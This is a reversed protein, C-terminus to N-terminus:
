EHRGPIHFFSHSVAHYPHREVVYGLGLGLIYKEVEDAMTALRFPHNEVLVRPQLRVLTERGALLAELESGEIDLKLWDLRVVGLKAIVADLTKCPFRGPGDEDVLAWTGPECWCDRGALGHPLITLEDFANAEANRRLGDLDQGPPVLAIVSAGAALAPLTYSGYCAGVDMVVDGARPHWHRDRVDQEDGFTGTSAATGDSFYRFSGGPSDKVHESM